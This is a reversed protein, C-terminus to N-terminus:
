WDLYLAEEQLCQIGRAAPGRPEEKGHKCFSSACTEASLQEWSCPRLVQEQWAQLNLLPEVRIRCGRWADGLGEVVEQNVSTATADDIVDLRAQLEWFVLDRRSALGQVAKPVCANCRCPSHRHGM